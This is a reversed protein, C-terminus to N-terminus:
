APEADYGAEDIAAVVAGAEVGPGHVTVLKSDLDVDVGTVGAVRSVERTVAVRCHDCSMGDARFVLDSPTDPSM